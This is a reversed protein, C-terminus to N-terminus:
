ILFTFKESFYIAKIGLKLYLLFIIVNTSVVIDQLLGEAAKVTSCSRYAKILSNPSSYVAAIAEATEPGVNQFQQLQQQWLKMFSSREKDLKVPCSTDGDAYWSFASDKQKQKEQKQPAEAIAKTFRFLLDGFERMSNVFIFNVAAQLQVEVLAEEIVMKSVQKVIKKLEGSCSDNEKVSRIYQDLKLIICTIKMESFMTHINVIYDSLITESTDKGKSKQMFAFVMKIFSENPILVVLNNEFEEREEKLLANNEVTVDIVTRCWAVSLKIPNEEITYKVNKEDLVCFIDQSENEMIFNHDIVVKMAKLCEDPKKSKLLEKESQRLAKALEKERKKEERVKERQQKAIEKDVDQKKKTPSNKSRKRIKSDKPLIDLDNSEDAVCGNQYANTSQYEIVPLPDDDVTNKWDDDSDSLLLVEPMQKRPSVVPLPPLENDSEKKNSDSEESDSISHTRKISTNSTTKKIKNQERKKLLSIRERLSLFEIDSNNMLDEPDM